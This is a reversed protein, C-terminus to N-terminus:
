DKVVSSPLGLEAASRPPYWYDKAIGGLFLVVGVTMWMLMWAVSTSVCNWLCVSTIDPTVVSVDLKCWYKIDYNITIWRYIEDKSTMSIDNWRNKCTQHNNSL